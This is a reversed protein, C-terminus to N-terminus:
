LAVTRLPILPSERECTILITNARDARAQKFVPDYRAADGHATIILFVSEDSLNYLLGNLLRQWEILISSYDLSSLISHLYRAALSSLSAGYIYLPRGSTLLSAAQLLSERDLQAVNDQFMALNRGIVEDSFGADKDTQRLQSRSQYKFENFGSFGLKQCFRVITASSTYLVASLEELSLYTCAPFHNELYQLIDKEAPTLLLRRAEEFIPIM